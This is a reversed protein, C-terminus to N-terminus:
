SVRDSYKLVIPVLLAISFHLPKDPTTKGAFGHPLPFPRQRGRVISIGNPAKNAKTTLLRGKDWAAPPMALVVAELALTEKLGRKTALKLQLM